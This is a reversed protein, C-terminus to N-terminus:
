PVRGSRCPGEASATPMSRSISFFPLYYFHGGTPLPWSLESANVKALEAIGRAGHRALLAETQMWGYAASEPGWKGICPGSEVIARRMLGHALPSLALTCTACGGASEGFVTVRTPDGGFRAIHDRVWRLALVQDRIANMGGSGSAKDTVLFGLPGLRYNITVFVVDQSQVLHTGDTWGGTHTAGGGSGSGQTFGGGHIWLMVPRLGIGSAAVSAAARPRWINLFLCDESQRQWDNPAPKMGGSGQWCIDRFETANYTQPAWPPVPKAQQFRAATGYKIGFFIDVLAPSPLSRGVIEGLDTRVAPDATAARGVSLM